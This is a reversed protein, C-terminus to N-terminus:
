QVSNDTRYQVTLLCSTYLVYINRFFDVFSYKEM